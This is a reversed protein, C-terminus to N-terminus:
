CGNAWHLVADELSPSFRKAWRPMAEKPSSGFGQTCHTEAEELSPGFEYFGQGQSEGEWVECKM